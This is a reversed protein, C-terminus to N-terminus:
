MGPCRQCVGTLYAGGMGRPQPPCFLSLGLPERLNDSDILGQGAELGSPKWAPPFPMVMKRQQRGGDRLYRLRDQPSLLLSFLHIM